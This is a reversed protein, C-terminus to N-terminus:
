APSDEGIYFGEEDYLGLPTASVSAPADSYDIPGWTVSKGRSSRPSPTQTEFNVGKRRDAKSASNHGDWFGEGQDWVNKMPPTNEKEADDDLAYKGILSSALSANSMNSDSRGIRLYRKITDSEISLYAESNDRRLGKITKVISPAPPARPGVPHSIQFQPSEAERPSFGPKNDLPHTSTTQGHMGTVPTPLRKQSLQTTASAKPPPSLSRPFTLATTTVMVSEPNAEESQRTAAEALARDLIQTPSLPASPSTPSAVREYLISSSSDALDIIPYQLETTDTNSQNILTLGPIHRRSVAASATAPSASHSPTPESPRERSRGLHGGEPDDHTPFHPISLVSHNSSTMSNRYSPSRSTTRNNYQASINPSSRLDTAALSPADPKLSARHSRINNLKPEFSSASPPGRTESLDDYPSKPNDAEEEAIEFMRSSSTTRSPPGHFTPTMSIRVCNQRRHTKRANPSGRLASRKTPSNSQWQFPNGDSMSSESSQVSVQSSNRSPVPRNSSIDQLIGQRKDKEIPSGYNDSVKRLQSDRQSPTSLVGILPQPRSSQPAPETEPTSVRLSGNSSQRLKDIFTLSSGLPLKPEELPSLINDGFMSATSSLMRPSSRMSSSIDTHRQGALIANKMERDHERIHPILGMDPHRESFDNRARMNPSLSTKLLSSGISTASTVSGSSMTRTLSPKSRLRGMVVPLPPVPGTPALSAQSYSISRSNRKHRNSRSSDGFIADDSAIFITPVTVSRDLPPRRGEPEILESARKSLRLPAPRLAESPSVTPGPSGSPSRDRRMGKLIAPEPETMHPEQELQGAAAHSIAAEADPAIGGFSKEKEIKPSEAVTSLRPATIKKGSKDRKTSRRRPLPWSLMDSKRKDKRRRKAGKEYEDHLDETCSLVDWGSGTTNPLQVSKRLAITPRTINACELPAGIEKAIIQRELDAMKRQHTRWMLYTVSVYGLSFLLVGGLVAGLVIVIVLLSMKPADLLDTLDLQVRGADEEAYAPRGRPKLETFLGSLKRRWWKLRTAASLLKAVPHFTSM